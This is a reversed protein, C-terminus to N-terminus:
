TFTSSTSGIDAPPIPLLTSTDAQDTDKIFPTMVDVLRDAASYQVAHGARPIVAIQAHPTLSALEKTWADPAIVDNEGRIFLVPQLIRPLLSEIRHSAMAAFEAPVRPTMRVYDKLVIPYLSPSEFVAAWLLRALARPVNRAPRDLTAGILVLREVRQPHRVAVEAAIQAGMSNGILVVRDLQMADLWRILARALGRIDLAYTPSDSRGHGPLDPAYVDFERALREATPVFYASSVGFGHILVVPPYASIGTAQARAFCRRGDVATWVDILERAAGGELLAEREREAQQWSRYAYGLAALGGLLITNRVLPRM